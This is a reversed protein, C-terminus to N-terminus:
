SSRLSTNRVAIKRPLPPAAGRPQVWIYVGVAGTPSPGFGALGIRGDGTFDAAGLRTDFHPTYDLKVSVIRRPSLGDTPAGTLIALGPKSKTSLILDPIGDGNIDAVTPGDRNVAADPVVFTASPQSPFPAQPDRTNRYLWVIAGDKGNALLAVDTWGDHDFDAAALFTWGKPEGAPPDLHLSPTEALSGNPRRLFIDGSSTVLDVQGDGNVDALAIDMYGRPVNIERVRFAGDEQMWALSYGAVFRSGILLDKRGAGRFDGIAVQSGRTVALPLAKFRLPGQRPQPYLLVARDESSVFFHATKNGSAHVMRLKWGPSLEPLDIEADPTVNFKGGQNLYIKVASGKRKPVLVAVDPKGDGDVDGYAASLIPELWAAVLYNSQTFRYLPNPKPPAMKSWGTAEGAEIGAAIFNDPDGGGHGGLVVDPRLAALKKMSALADQASFDLSGSYGLLGGPMMLDGTAVYTRGGKQFAYGMSGATHGPLRLARLKLGALEIEQDGTLVVDVPVPPHFGYGTGGPIHHKLVYAMEASAVVQAGTVVRWLYAGPAHDGHEHTPLVYKVQVPDLGAGQIRAWNQELSAGSNPDILILGKPAEVLIQSGMDSHALGGNTRWIGPGLRDAKQNRTWPKDGPV